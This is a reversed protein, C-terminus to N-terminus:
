KIIKILHKDSESNQENLLMSLRNVEENRLNLAYTIWRKIEDDSISGRYIKKYVNYLCEFLIDDNISNMSLNPDSFKQLQEKINETQLILSYKENNSLGFFSISDANPFNEKLHNNYSDQDRTVDFYYWGKIEYKDDDIFVKNRVHMRKNIDFFNQEAVIGLETLLRYFIDSFSSCVASEYLLATFVSNGGHFPKIKYEFWKQSILYASFVQEFKSLKLEKIGNAIEKLTQLVKKTDKIDIFEDLLAREGSYYKEGYYLYNNYIKNGSGKIILDQCAIKDNFKYFDFIAENLEKRSYYDKVSNFWEAPKFTIIIENNNSFIKNISHIIKDFDNNYTTDIILMQPELKINEIKKLDAVIMKNM